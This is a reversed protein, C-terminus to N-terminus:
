FRGEDGYLEICRDMREPDIVAEVLAPPAVHPPSAFDFMDLLAWANADRGTMAPLLWRAEVFRLISSLDTVRDSVYGAKAYPSVVILPVRFGLRDFGGPEDRAGLTPPYDGPPCAEPPSVHDYFGGHEDYSIIVATREWLPSAFVANVVEAVHQQGAQPNAPPHEDTQRVGLTFSPDVYSVPPLRGAALDAYFTEAPRVKTIRRGVVDPYTALAFPLDSSYVRWDVGAAELLQFIVYSASRREDPIVDNSTNGFSTASMFYFRNVWTPGLVSCFHHDSMAFTRALDWYFPLDTGDLYGLARAGLPENTTVFGDNLGGNWQRHSANWSHSVDDICYETTHFPAVPDGAADPNSADPPIGDIGPMTGFYHDFSRNEQLLMVIHDIPIDDGLPFEEGLTEWPMAGAGYACGARGAEAEAESIRPGDYRAPPPPPPATDRPVASDAAADGADGADGADPGGVASDDGSCAGALVTVLALSLAVVLHSRM